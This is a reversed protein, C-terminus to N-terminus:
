NQRQFYFPCAAGRYGIGMANIRYSKQMAESTRDGALSISGQMDDQLQQVLVDM